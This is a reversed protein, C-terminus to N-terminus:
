TALCPGVAVVTGLIEHGVCLPYSKPGWEGKGTHIDSHCVGSYSTKIHVDKPGVARRQITHAVMQGTADKCALCKTAIMSM